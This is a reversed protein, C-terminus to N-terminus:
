LAPQAARWTLTKNYHHSHHHHRMKQSRLSSAYMENTKVKELPRGRRPSPNSKIRGFILKSSKTYACGSLITSWSDTCAIM